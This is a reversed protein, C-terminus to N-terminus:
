FNDLGGGRRYWRVGIFSKLYMAVPKMLKKLIVAGAGPCSFRAAKYMAAISVPTAKNTTTATERAM